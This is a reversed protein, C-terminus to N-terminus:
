MSRQPLTNLFEIACIWQDVYLRSTKKKKTFIDIRRCNKANFLLWINKPPFSNILSLFYLYFKIGCIIEICIKSRFNLKPGLHSLLIEASFFISKLNSLSFADESKIWREGYRNTYLEWHSLTVFIILVVQGRTLTLQIETLLQQLITRMVREAFLLM